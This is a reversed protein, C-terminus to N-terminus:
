KQVCAFSSLVLAADMDAEDHELRLRNSNGYSESPDDDMEDEGDDGNMALHDELYGKNEFRKSHEVVIRNDLLDIFHLSEEIITTKNFTSNDSPDLEVKPTNEKVFHNRVKIFEFITYLLTQKMVTISKTDTSDFSPLLFFFMKSGIQIIHKNGILQYGDTAHYQAGNVM